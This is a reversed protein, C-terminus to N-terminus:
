NQIPAEIRDRSSASVTQFALAASYFQFRRCRGSLAPLPRLSFPELLRLLVSMGTQRCSVRVFVEGKVHIRPGDRKKGAGREANDAAAVRCFRSSILAGRLHPDTTNMLPPHRGDLMRQESEIHILSLCTAATDRDKRPFRLFIGRRFTMYARSIHSISYCHM